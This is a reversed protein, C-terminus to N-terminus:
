TNKPVLTTSPGSSMDENDEGIVRGQNKYSEEISLSNLPPTNLYKAGILRFVIIPISTADWEWYKEGADDNNPMVSAQEYKVVPDTWTNPVLRCGFLM